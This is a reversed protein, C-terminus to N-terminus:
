PRRRLVLQEPAILPPEQRPAASKPCGCGGTCGNGKLGRWTRRVRWAIYVGALGIAFGTLYLQWDM